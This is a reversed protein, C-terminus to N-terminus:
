LGNYNDMNVSAREPAHIPPPQSVDADTKSLIVTSNLPITNTEDTEDEVDGNQKDKTSHIQKNDGDISKWKNGIKKEVNQQQIFYMIWDYSHAAINAMSNYTFTTIVTPTTDSYQISYWWYSPIYLVFGTNVEFELFKLKEMEKKYKQQPNWVDIPSKFEYSLYDKKMHLLSTSKWPTMKVTIKGENVAIFHRHYTHYRLPTTAGKSGMCVDYKTQLTFSPRLLDDMSSFTSYFPSDEVFRSNNESIFHSRPDTELLQISSAVSLVIEDVSEISENKYDLTDKVKWEEEEIKKLTPLNINDFLSSDITSLHFLVPQKVDCIEQLQRNSTYDMEYIELDESRRYQQTIHLYIFFVIIFIAFHLLLDMVSQILLTYLTDSTNEKNKNLTVYM